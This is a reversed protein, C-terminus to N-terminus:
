YQVDYPVQKSGVQIIGSRGNGSSGDSGHRTSMVGGVTTRAMMAAKQKEGSSIDHVANKGDQRNMYVEFALVIMAIALGTLTVIFVGGLSHLTIGESCNFEAMNFRIRQGQRTSPAYRDDLTPCLSRLTSNWYRSSLTEFYRDKQLELIIKSVEEQLHSGQQVAVAYPQEAFPEGVETFNCNNYYEYRIQLINYSPTPERQSIGAYKFRRHMM